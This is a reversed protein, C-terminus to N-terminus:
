WVKKYMNDIFGNTMGWIDQQKNGHSHLKQYICVYICTNFTAKTDRVQITIQLIFTHDYTIMAPKPEPSAARKNSDLVLAQSGPDQEECCSRLYTFKNTCAEIWGFPHGKSLMTSSFCQILTQHSSFIMQPIITEHM